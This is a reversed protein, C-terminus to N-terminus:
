IKIYGIKEAEARHTEPLVEVYHHRTTEIETHGMWDQVVELPIGAKRCNTAFTKRLDKLTHGPCLESFVETVFDERYPFLIYGDISKVLEAVNDFLPIFRDSGETKTGRIHCIKNEFDFDSKNAKLAEARRCGTYLVYKYYKILNGVDFAASKFKHGQLRDFFATLVEPACFKGVIRKHKPIEVALMPNREVYGLAFAKSFAGTLLNYISERTRGKPISLLFEQFIDGKCDRLFVNQLRYKVKIKPNNCRFYNNIYGKYSTYTEEIVKPKKYLEVFRELWDFLRIDVMGADRYAVAANLKQLCHTYTYDYVYKYQGDPGKYKGMFRGDTKRYTICGEKPKAITKSM